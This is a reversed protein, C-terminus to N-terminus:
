QFLYLEVTIQTRLTGRATEKFARGTDTRTGYSRRALTHKSHWASLSSKFVDQQYVNLDKLCSRFSLLVFLCIHPIFNQLSNSPCILSLSSRRDDYRCLHVSLYAEASAVSFHIIYFFSTLVEYSTRVGADVLSFFSCRDGGYMDVSPVLMDLYAFRVSVLCRKWGKTYQISQYM